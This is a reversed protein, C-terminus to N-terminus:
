PWAAHRYRSSGIIYRSARTRVEQKLLVQAKDSNTRQFAFIRRSRKPHGEQSGITAVLALVLVRGSSAAFSYTPSWHM